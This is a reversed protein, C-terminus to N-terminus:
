NGVNVGNQPNGAIPMFVAEIKHKERVNKFTWESVPGVHKGDVIVDATAYGPKPTIRWTQDGGEATSKGTDSTIDGNESPEVITDFSRNSVTLKGNETTVAYRADEGTVTLIIETTGIRATNPTQAYALRVTIGSLTDSGLLGTVTYDTGAKPNALSPAALGRYIAKDNARITVPAKAVTVTIKTQAGYHNADGAARVTIEATGSKRFTLTGAADVTVVNEDSSVFTVDGIASTVAVAKDTEGYVGSVNGAAVTQMAKEIEFTTTGSVTYNGGDNDTVTITATGANTNDKYSVRYEKPDIVHGLDDTVTVEPTIASGIYVFPAGSVTVTPATVIRPTISFYATAEGEYNNYGVVTLGYQGVDTGHAYVYVYDYNQGNVLTVGDLVVSELEPSKETGDYVVSDSKLTVAAGTINKRNVKVSAIGTAAAYEPADPTFTWEARYGGAIPKVAGNKWAFTGTVEAGTAPDKMKGTITSDNLTQGYTISSASVEGDPVPVTKNVASVNITLTIDAYNATTVAVTITGFQGEDTSSRDAVELTLAGTRGNVLTVFSGVGLDTVPKGYSIAGYEGPATLSPLLTSLDFSYTKHLGNTITLAGNEATPAAAKTITIVASGHDRCTWEDTPNFDPHHLVYNDNTLKVTYQIASKSGAEPSDVYIDESNKVVAHVNSIEYVEAPVSIEQNNADYFKLCGAKEAADLEFVATGDYPKSLNKVFTTRAIEMRAITVTFSGAAETHGTSNAKYYVTYTGADTFAPVAASYTGNEAASYTFEVKQGNVATAAANVKATQPKGNYTLTGNQSVSVDTLAAPNVKVSTRGTAIAYKGDYEDAPIFEYDYWNDDANIGPVISGDKWRLTGEVAAGTTPDYAGNVAFSLTSESLPQGYTIDSASLVNIGPTIRNKAFVNIELKFDEYNDTVVTMQVTGIRGEINTPNKLIPLSLKSNEFKIGGYNYSTSLDSSPSNYSINVGYTKPSELAPLAPLEVEYTKALDNYIYLEGPTAAPATAKQITCRSMVLTSSDGSRLTYNKVNGTLRVTVSVSKDNGANADAEGTNTDMFKGTATYDTNITLTDGDVLGAFIAETIVADATGDYIKEALAANVLYLTKPGITVTLTYTRNGDKYDDNGLVKYYVKYTGADTKTPIETSFSNASRSLSYVMTGYKADLVGPTVLEQPQGNYTLTNIIPATIADAPISAKTVTLTKNGSSVSYGDKAATFYIDYEGRESFTYEAVYYWTTGIKKYEVKDGSMQAYNYGNGEREGVYFAVDAGSTNCYACLQATTGREVSSYVNSGNAKLTLTNSTIPLREITVNHLVTGINENAGYWKYARMDPYNTYVRYGYQAPVYLINEWTAGDALKLTGIVAPAGSGALKAGASAVVTGVTGTSKSNSFTTDREGGTVYVTGNISYGNLDIGTCTAGNITYEGSVDALLRLTSSGDRQADLATQLDAFNRWPNGEVGTLATQAVAPAGCYPCKLSNMDFGSTGNHDCKVVTVNDLSYMAADPVEASTLTTDYPVYEGSEVYRFAYGEALWVGVTSTKVEGTSGSTYRITGYTGSSLKARASAGSVTLRGITGTFGNTKMLAGDRLWFAGISPGVGEPTITGGSGTLIVTTPGTSGFDIGNESLWHGNFDLTVTKGSVDAWADLDDALLTVIGNDATSNFAERMTVDNEQRYGLSTYRVEMTKALYVVTEGNTVKVAMNAKCTGCVATNGTETVADHPCTYGCITCKGSDDYTHDGRCGINCYECVLNTDFKHPDCAVAAIYGNAEVDAAGQMATYSQPTATGDETVLEYRYGPALLGALNGPRNETQIQQFKGGRLLVTGATEKVVLAGDVTVSDVVTLSAGDQVRIGLAESTLTSLSGNTLTVNASGTLLLADMGGVISKGSLDLTFTGDRITLPANLRKSDEMMALINTDGEATFEAVSALMEADTARYCVNINGYIDTFSIIWAMKLGCKECKGDLDTNIHPCATGCYECTARANATDVIYEGHPDCREIDVSHLQKDASIVSLTIPETSHPHRLRKDPALIDKWAVGKQNDIVTVSGSVLTLKANDNMESGLVIWGVVTMDEITLNAGDSLLIDVRSSNDTMLTGNKLTVAADGTFTLATHVDEKIIFKGNLDLTFTGRDITLGEGGPLYISCLFTITCGDQKQAAAIAEPLTKYYERDIRAVRAYQACTSCFGSSDFNDHGPCPKGCETCVGDRYPHSWHEVAILDGASYYQATRDLVVFDGATGDAKYEKFAIGETYFVGLDAREAALRMKHQNGDSRQIQFVAGPEIKLTGTSEWSIGSVKVTGTLRLSASGVVSVAYANAADLTGNTVTVDSGLSLMLLTGYDGCLRKGGLDLTFRGANVLMNSGSMDKLLTVTCGTNEETQAAAIADKLSTYLVTDAGLTLKAEIEEGCYRCTGSTYDNHDCKVVTVETLSNAPTTQSVYGDANKFVYGSALLEGATVATDATITGFTGCSLPAVKGGVGDMELTTIRGSFAELTLRGDSVRITTNVDGSGTVTLSGMDGNAGITITGGGTISYGNLDLLVSGGQGPAIAADAAAMVGGDKVTEAAANKLLTITRAGNGPKGAANLADALGVYYTTNSDATLSAALQAGCTSCTCTSTDINEHTCTKDCDICVGNKWNTHLCTEGCACEGDVIHHEHPLVTVDTLSTNKKGNRVVAPDDTLCFAYGDALLDSATIGVGDNIRIIKFKGSKLETKPTPTKTVNLKTVTVDGSQVDLKGGLTVEAVTGSGTLTLTSNPDITATKNWSYGNLDLTITKNIIFSGDINALLKVTDGDKANDLAGSLATYTKGNVEAVRPLGTVNIAAEAQVSTNEMEHVYLTYRGTPTEADTGVLIKYTGNGNNKQTVVFYTDLGNKQIYAELTDTGTYTVTFEAYAGAKIDTAEPSITLVPKTVPESSDGAQVNSLKRAAKGGVKYTGDAFMAKEATSGDVAASGYFTKGAPGAEATLSVAQATGTITMNDGGFTLTGKVGIQAGSIDCSGSIVNLGGNIAAAAGAPAHITFTGGDVTVKGTVTGNTLTLSDSADISGNISYGNMNITTAAYVTINESVNGLLTIEVPEMEALIEYLTAYETDGVKAVPTEGEAQVEIGNEEGANMPAIGGTEGDGAPKVPMIVADNEEGGDEEDEVSATSAPTAKATLASEETATPTPAPTSTPAPEDKKVEAPATAAATPSPSVAADEATASVPLLSFCLTLALLFSLVRRKM